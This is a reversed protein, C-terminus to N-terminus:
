KYRKHCVRTLDNVENLLAKASRFDGARTAQICRAVAQTCREWQPRWEQAVFEDYRNLNEMMAAADADSVPRGEQVAKKVIKWLAGTTKKHKKAKHRGRGRHTSVNSLAARDSFVEQGKGDQGLEQVPIRLSLEYHIFGDRVTISWRSEVEQGFVVEQGLIDTRGQAVIGSLTTLRKAADIRSGHADERKELKGM